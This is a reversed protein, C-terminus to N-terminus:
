DRPLGVVVQDPDGVEVKTTYLLQPVQSVVVLRDEIIEEWTHRYHRHANCHHQHHQMM